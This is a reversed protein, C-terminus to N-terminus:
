ATEAMCPTTGTFRNKDTKEEEEKERLLPEDRALGCEVDELAPIAVKESDPIRPERIAMKKQYYFRRGSRRVESPHYNQGRVPKTQLVSYRARPLLRLLSSTTGM